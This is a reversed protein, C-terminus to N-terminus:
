RMNAPIDDVPCVSMMASVLHGKPFDASTRHNFEILVSHGSTTWAMWTIGGLYRAGKRLDLEHGNNLNANVVQAKDRDMPERRGVKWDAM